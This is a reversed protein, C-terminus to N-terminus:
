RNPLLLQSNKGENLDIMAVAQSRGKANHLTSLKLAADSKRLIGLDDIAL